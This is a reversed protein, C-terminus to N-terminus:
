FMSSDYSEVITNSRISVLSLVEQLMDTLNRFQWPSPRRYFLVFGQVKLFYVRIIFEIRIICIINKFGKNVASNKCSSLM